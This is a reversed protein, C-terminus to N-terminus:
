SQRQVICVCMCAYESMTAHLYESDCVQVCVCINFLFVHCSFVSRHDSFLYWDKFCM